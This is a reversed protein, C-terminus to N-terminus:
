DAYVIDVLKGNKYICTRELKGTDDYYFRKGNILQADRFDGEQDLRGDKYLKHYGNGDFPKFAADKKDQNPDDKGSSTDPENNEPQKKGDSEIAGTNYERISAPDLKGDNFTKEAILKGSEDYEKIVGSEKGDQWQGAISLQGNEHFYKQEGTRKGSENYQWEYKQKGNDYYYKYDGTWKTGKWIGEESISGNEYYFRAYGNPKGHVYTIESKLNTNPYYNKWIGEKKDDIFRGEEVVKTKTDDFKVWYGQKMNNEDVRNITDQALLSIGPLFFVITLIVPIFKM